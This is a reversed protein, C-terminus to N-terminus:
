VQYWTNVRKAPGRIPYTTLDCRKEHLRFRFVWRKTGNPKVELYLGKEGAELYKKDRPKLAKAKTDSLPV